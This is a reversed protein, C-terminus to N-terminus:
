KQAPVRPGRRQHFICTLFTSDSQAPARGQGYIRTCCSRVHTALFVDTVKALIIVNCPTPNIVAWIAMDAVMACNRTHKGGESEPFVQLQFGADQYEPESADVYAHISVDGDIHQKWIADKISECLSAPHVGSPIPYDNLDWFVCTKAEGKKYFTLLPFQKTQLVSEDGM